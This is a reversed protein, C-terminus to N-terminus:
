NIPKNEATLAMASSRSAQNFIVAGVGIVIGVAGGIAVNKLHESPKDVFSLTSLGLVAGVVGSSIVITIDRISDDILGTSEETASPAAGAGFVPQMSVLSVAILLLSFYKKFMM